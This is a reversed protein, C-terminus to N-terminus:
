CTTHLLAGVAEGAEALRNYVSVVRDTPGAEWTVGAEELHRRTEDSVGLAGTMGVGLVIRRAGHDILERADGVQVGPAHRTGTENWDWERGGGPWLKVDKFTGLGRVEIKGWSCAEILPARSAM